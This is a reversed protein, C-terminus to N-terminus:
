QNRGTFVLSNKELRLHLRKLGGLPKLAREIDDIAFFIMLRLSKVEDMCKLNIWGQSEFPRGKM